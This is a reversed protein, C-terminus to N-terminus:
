VEQEPRHQEKGDQKEVTIFLNWKRMCHHYQQAKSGGQEQLKGGSLARVIVKSSNRNTKLDINKM